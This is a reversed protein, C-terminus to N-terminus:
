SILWNYSNLALSSYFKVLSEKMHLNGYDHPVVLAPHSTSCGFMFYIIQLNDFHPCWMQDDM